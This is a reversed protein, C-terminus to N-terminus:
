SASSRHREPARSGYADPSATPNDIRHSPNSERRPRRPTSSLGRVLSMIEFRQNSDLGRLGAPLTNRCCTPKGHGLGPNSEGYRCHRQLPRGAGAGPAQKSFLHPRGGGPTRSGGEGSSPDGCSRSSPIRGSSSSPQFGLPRVSEGEPNSDWDRREMFTWPEARETAVRPTAARPSRLKLDRPPLTAPRVGAQWAPLGPEVGPRRLRSQEDRVFLTRAHLEAPLASAKWALHMPEIGKVRESGSLATLEAPPAGADCAPPRPNSERM